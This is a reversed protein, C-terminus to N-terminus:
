KKEALLRRPLLDEECFKSIFLCFLGGGETGLLESGRWVVGGYLGTTRAWPM